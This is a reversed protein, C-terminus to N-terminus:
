VWVMPRLFLACRRSSSSAASSALHVTWGDTRGDARLQLKSERAAISRAGRVCLGACACRACVYVRARRALACVSVRRGMLGGGGRGGVWVSVGVCGSVLLGGAFVVMCVAAAVEVVVAVVVVVMGMVVLVVVM